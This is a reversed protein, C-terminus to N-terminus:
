KETRAGPHLSSRHDRREWSAPTRISSQPAKALGQDGERHNRQVHRLSASSLDPSRHIQAAVKKGNYGSAEADLM